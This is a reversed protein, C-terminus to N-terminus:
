EAYVVNLGHQIIRIDSEFPLARKRRIIQYVLQIWGFTNVESGHERFFKVTLEVAQIFQLKDRRRGTQLVGAESSSLAEPSHKCIYDATVICFDM